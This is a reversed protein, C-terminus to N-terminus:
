KKYSVILSELATLIYSFCIVGFLVGTILAAMKLYTYIGLEVFIVDLIIPSIFLVPVNKRFLFKIKGFLYIFSSILAGLYIGFCRSCVLTCFGSIYLVKEQDQHCVLSFTKLLFFKIYLLQPIITILFDTNLASFWISTLSFVIIRSKLSLVPKM